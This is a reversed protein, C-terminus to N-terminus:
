GCAHSGLWISRAAGAGRRQRARGPVRDMRLASSDTRARVPDRRRFARGSFSRLRQDDRHVGRRPCGPVRSRQAGVSRSRAGTRLFAASGSGRARGCGCRAGDFSVAPRVHARRAAALPPRRADSRWARDRLGQTGRRSYPQQPRRKTDRLPVAYLHRAAEPSAGRCGALAGLQDLSAGSPVLTVLADAAFHSDLVCHDFAVASVSHPKWAQAHYGPDELPRGRDPADCGRGFGFYAGADVIRGNQHLRGGVMVTDPFLEFLGMAELPWVDDVIRTDHWLVHLLRGSEAARAALRALGPVGGVPDLRVVDHPIDKASSTSTSPRRSSALVVTTIPVRPPRTEGCGGTLCAASCRRPNWAFDSRDAGSDRAAEDPRPAALRLRVAEFPYKRGDVDQHIRWSYLVEPIHLPTHGAALFRTFTDWDHSGEAQKDTYAGLQLALQRDVISLHAIYCSNAFLVPDFSPKLYPSSFRDGDLKDEDTYALAPYGAEGLAHSM